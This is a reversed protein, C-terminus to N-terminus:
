SEIDSLKVTVGVRTRGNEDNFAKLWVQFVAASGGCGTALKRWLTLAVNCAPDPVAILEYTSQKCPIIARLALTMIGRSLREERRVQSPAM